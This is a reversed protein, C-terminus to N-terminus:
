KESNAESARCMTIKSFKTLDIFDQKNFNFTVGLKLKVKLIGSLTVAVVISCIPRRALQVRVTTLIGQYIVKPFGLSPNSEITSPIRAAKTVNLMIRIWIQSCFDFFFFCTKYPHPASFSQILFILCSVWTVEMDFISTTDKTTRNSGLKRTSTNSGFQSRGSNCIAPYMMQQDQIKM